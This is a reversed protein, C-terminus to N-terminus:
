YSHLCTMIIPLVYYHMTSTLHVMIHLAPLEEVTDVLSARQDSKGEVPPPLMSELLLSNCM